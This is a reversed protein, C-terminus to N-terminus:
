GVDDMRYVFPPSAVQRDERQVVWPVISAGLHRLEEKKLIAWWDITIEKPACLSLSLSDIALSRQQYLSLSLSLSLVLSHLNAVTM